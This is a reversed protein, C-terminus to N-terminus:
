KEGKQRYRYTAQKIRNKEAILQEVEKEEILRANYEMAMFLRRGHLGATEVTQATKPKPKSYDIPEAKGRSAEFAESNAITALKLQKKLECVRCDPTTRWTACTPCWYLTRNYDPIDLGFAVGMAIVERMPHNLADSAESATIRRSMQLLAEVDDITWTM